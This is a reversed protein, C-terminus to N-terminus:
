EKSVTAEASLSSTFSEIEYSIERSEEYLEM